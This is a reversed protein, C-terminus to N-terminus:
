GIAAPIEFQGPQIRPSRLDFADACTRAKLRLSVLQEDAAVPFGCGSEGDVEADSEVQSIAARAHDQLASEFPM